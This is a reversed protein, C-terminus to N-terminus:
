TKVFLSVLLVAGAVALLVTVADAAVVGPPKCSCRPGAAYMARVARPDLAAKGCERNVINHLRVTWDFLAERGRALADDPSAHTLHRTLNERCMKCPLVGPLSDFFARYRRRELMSPRSEPYGLAVYHIFSWGCTGWKQPM